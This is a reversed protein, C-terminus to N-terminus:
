LSEFIEFTLNKYTKIYTKIHSLKEYKFRIVKFLFFLHFLLCKYKLFSM